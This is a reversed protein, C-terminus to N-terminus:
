ELKGSLLGGRYIPLHRYYVQLTYISLCTVYLRGGSDGYRDGRPSWSGREAGRKMQHAPLVERIKSNWATWIDGEMHHCVQTAYYWYYVSRGGRWKPPNELLRAAGAQLRIDDRQWGLYQRCLLGEATMAISPGRRPEYGYESGRFSGQGRSVEDLFSRVRDFVPSPVDLGAMGASQLAMVVWGTVSLDSRVGPAYKWGGEPAQIDVLYDIAAQAPERYADDRTMGYLECLAIAAQAQTYIRHHHPGGDQFFNGDRDQSKLLRAWGRRVVKTFKESPDGQHTFGRGQFALLAMATAAEANEFGIGDKYPGRLSWGGDPRQQRALWRLGELVAKETAQTGGYAELLKARAGPERGSLSVGIVDSTTDSALLTGALLPKALSPMAIPDVVPPLPQPEFVPQDITLEALTDLQLPEEILQEGPQESYEGDLWVAQEISAGTLWVALCILAAIHVAASLLWPPSERLWREIPTLTQADDVASAPEGATAM